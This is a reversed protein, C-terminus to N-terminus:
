AAAGQNQREKVVETFAATLVMRPINGTPKIMRARTNAEDLIAKQDPSPLADFWARQAAMEAKATEAERDSRASAERTERTRSETRRSADRQTEDGFDHKMADGGPRFYTANKELVARFLHHKCEHGEGAMALLAGAFAKPRDAEPVKRFIREGQPGSPKFAAWLSKLGFDDAGTRECFDALLEEGGEGLFSLFEAHTDTPPASVPPNTGEFREEIPPSVQTVPPPTLSDPPPPTGCVGPRHCTTVPPIDGAEGSDTVPGSEDSAQPPHCGTVPPYGGQDAQEKPTRPDTGDEPHHRGSVVGGDTELFPSWPVGLWLIDSTRGPNGRRTRQDRKLILGLGELVQLKRQVTRDSMECQRAITPVAKWAAGKDSAADAITILVLKATKDGTKQELAWGM